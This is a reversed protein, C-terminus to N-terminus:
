LSEALFLRQGHLCNMNGFEPSTLLVYPNLEYIEWPKDPYQYLRLAWCKRDGARLLGFVHGFADAGGEARRAANLRLAQKTGDPLARRSEDRLDMECDGLSGGDM